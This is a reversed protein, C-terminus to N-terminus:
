LRIRGHQSRRASHRRRSGDQARSSADRDAAANDANIKSGALTVLGEVDFLNKVCYTAGALPGVPEGRAIRADIDAAKKRARAALVSTYANLKPNTTAIRGLTSEVIAGASLSRKAVAAVADSATLRFPESM